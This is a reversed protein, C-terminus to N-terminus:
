QEETSRSKTRLAEFGIVDDPIADPVTYDFNWLGKMRTGVLVTLAMLVAFLIYMFAIGRGEGTGIVAGVTDALLGDPLFMPEFLATGYPAVLGFGIPLTSFAVLQNLAFVRGHFRQPVKVQIITAYIGNLITLSAFMGFIGIAIPVLHEQLGVVFAFCALTLTSLIQGRMRLRRPGGWFTMTLGGLFIGLGGFFTVRGVDGLEAFSLTLPSVLLFMPSMFLNVVAFFLLMRRIGLHGWTYRFGQVMETLVSERRKWPMTKPFRIILVIIIAVTYSAVDIALIGGLGVVSLLGAAALPVVLQAVGTAMGVVGNAHGLYRKPVLQPIASSYAVRQFTLAISLSVLLPYIHWIELNGTWVLLGLMLQTSGAAVDSVILVVRRNFRDVVTGALPAVLLGPVLGLVSFLAFNALSGTTLYIWIPIAFETLASGTMSVLQGAALVLFRRMSPPPGTVEATIAVEDIAKPEESRSVGELWWTETGTRRELAATDGSSLAPHTTTIITALEPARYKLFYHAAEDLVVCAAVPSLCHWERYREQYFEVVPDREGAVAIVPASLLTAGQEFLHAFYREAERTGRRRNRVILQLEEQEFESVDLGAAVLNNIRAQDGGIDELWEALRAFPSRPRAFPFVGGLYIAEVPRGASELRRSLEACLTTGVGCHGYLVIPGQVTALIETACTEAVDLLSQPEEGLEHGPVAISLLAWDPPLADALPKYIIASGGGYPACIVTATTPRAPTLRHLLGTSGEGGSEVLHALERVTPHKFLEMLTVPHDAKRMRAVVQMALLSHGGLDFFDDLVGVRELGLVSAWIAAITEEVPTEPPTLTGEDPRTDTPDPLAARDVKGHSKLPMQDLWISRVPVMYDPLRQKLWSRLEPTPLPDSGVLYAALRQDRLEVVAQAIAPHEALVTEVEALEVRYGRVKVQLDRRGLFQLVGDHSWRGLDGTRYMRAGAAGYPDPLFKEATLAPRGLYGRALRDGGLYIEGPVGAPVPRMREDLVYVRAGPLPRGIPLSAQSDVREAPVPFTTVGVTTETPGYHNVVACRGATALESAWGVTAAEGGLILLKAPLLEAPEAEALLAALHSPTIKLYDPRAWAFYECLDPAATKPPILHLTGGTMLSLYFVTVGFDFALSQPLAFVGGPEVAFREHVGALYVLVERHQVAVGKPRGTTGSTYIVYALDSPRAGSDVPSDPWDDASPAIETVGGPLSRETVAIRIGADGIMYALRDDPQEPDLPVYAAGSKLVGLLAVALEASQELCVAVRDGPRVGGDRLRHALRNARRDLETYTLVQSDFVVAPDDRRVLVEHLLGSELSRPVSSSGLGLVHSREGASVWELESLRTYPDDVIARLLTGLSSAMRAITEERFLDPNFIFLGDFEEGGEWLYLALDFRSVAIDARFSSVELGLTGADPPVYNQLAFMVQFVASRSVDREVKLENVLQDFPLEQHSYADLCADRVRILFEAFSPDGSLDARMALTNVFMGAMGDLEPLGRGSVPTGVAFDRQGSWRALLVQLAALLVMYPTAGHFASLATIAGGVQADLHFKFDRGATTQEAPRPFDTPLELPPVGVLKDRWFALDKQYAPTGERARQWISHDGYQVALPRLPSERGERFAAHLAILERLLIEGSWGDTISHHAAFLLVHDDAARRILLVRLLGGASLDFTRALEESILARAEEDSGADVLRFGTSPEEDIVLSPLGDESTVFRMRLSEHRRTVEEVARAFANADLDGGLRVMFPITYATTGPRYQELFWLREQARSLPPITGPPRPTITTAATRRQLRQALLAQKAPSLSTM